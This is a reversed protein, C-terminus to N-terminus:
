ENASEDETAGNAALAKHLLERDEEPLVSFEAEVAEPQMEALKNLIAVLSSNDAEGLTHTVTSDVIRKETYGLDKGLTQLLKWSYTLDGAEVAAFVNTQAKDVMRDRADAYVEELVVSQKIRYQVSAASKYGMEEAVRSLIGKHFYISRALDDEQRIGQDKIAKKVLWSIKSRQQIYQASCGIHDAAEVITRNKDLAEILEEDQYHVKNGSGPCILGFDNGDLPELPRKCAEAIRQARESRQESREGQEIM